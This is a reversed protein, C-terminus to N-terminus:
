YTSIAISDGHNRSTSFFDEGVDVSLSEQVGFVSKQKAVWWCWGTLHEIIAIPCEHLLKAAECVKGDKLSQVDLQSGGCTSPIIVQRLDIMRLRYCIDSNETVIFVSSRALSAPVDQSKLQWSVQGLYKLVHVTICLLVCFCSAKSVSTRM